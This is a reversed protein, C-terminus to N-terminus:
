RPKHAKLKLNNFRDRTFSFAVGDSSHDIADVFAQIKSLYNDLRKTIILREDDKLNFAIGMELNLSSYSMNNHMNNNKM